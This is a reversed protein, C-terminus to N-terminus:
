ASTGKPVNTKIGELTELPSKLLIIVIMVLVAANELVM